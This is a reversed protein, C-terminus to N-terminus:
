YEHLAPCQPLTKKGWYFEVMHAVTEKMDTNLQEERTKKTKVELRLERTLPLLWTPIGGASNLPQLYPLHPKPQEGHPKPPLM